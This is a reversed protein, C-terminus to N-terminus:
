HRSRRQTSSTSEAVERMIVASAFGPYIRNGQHGRRLRASELDACLQTAGEILRPTPRHMLDPPISYLNGRKVATLIPWQRWSALQEAQTKGMNSAVIVEPDAALVAEITITPTLAQLDAFINEGGCLYIVNSIIQSGGITMLPQQWLQYFTRVRPRQSYRVRLAALRRRFDAAAIRAADQTGALEGYRELDDAVDDIRRPEVLFVPIGLARLKAIHAPSNGSIWGIVLDPKLAAITELDVQMFSGIRPLQQAAVPYDSYEVAGVLHKGAGAAYLTETINPALSVIRQAPATLRVVAGSDDKVVVEAQAAVAVLAMLWLGRKM